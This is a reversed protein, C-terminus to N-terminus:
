IAACRNAALSGPLRKRQPATLASLDSLYDFNRTQHISLCVMIASRISFDAGWIARPWVWLEACLVGVYAYRGPKLLTERLAVGDNLKRSNDKIAAAATGGMGSFSERRTAFLGGDGVRVLVLHVSHTDLFQCIKGPKVQTFTGTVRYAIQYVWAFRSRDNGTVSLHGPTLPVYDNAGFFWLGQTPPRKYLIVTQMPVKTEVSVEENMEVSTYQDKRFDVVFKGPVYAIDYQGRADTTSKLATGPITIEVGQLPNGFGDHIEGVIRAKPGCSFCLAFLMCVALRYLTKCGM